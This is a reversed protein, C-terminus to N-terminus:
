FRYDFALLATNFWAFNYVDDTDVGGELGRYGLSIRWDDNVQYGLKLSLDLARGPGGALGDFDFLVTEIM